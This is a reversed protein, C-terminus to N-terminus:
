EAPPGAQLKKKEKELEKYIKTLLSAIAICDKGLVQVGEIAQRVIELENIDLKM